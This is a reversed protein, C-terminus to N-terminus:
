EAKSFLSKFYTWRTAGLGLRIRFKDSNIKNLQALTVGFIGTKFHTTPWKQQYKNDILEQIAKMNADHKINKGSLPEDMELPNQNNRPNHLRHVQNELYYKVNREYSKNPDVPWKALLRM